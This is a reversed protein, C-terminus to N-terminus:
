INTESFMKKYDPYICSLGEVDSIQTQDRFYAPTHFFTGKFIYTILAGYFQAVSQSQYLYLIITGIKNEAM